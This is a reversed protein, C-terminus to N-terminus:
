PGVVVRYFGPLLRDGLRFSQALAKKIHADVEEARSSETVVLPAALGAADVVAFLEMPEWTKGAAPALAEPLVEALVLRGTAAAVVEIFGGRTAMPRVGRSGRGFGILGVEDGTGALADVARAREAPQGNVVAIPPLVRAFGAEPEVFDLANREDDLISRGPERKPEPLAANFGTPLFLPRLDRMLTEDQLVADGGTPRAFQLRTAAGPTASPATSTPVRFVQMLAVVLGVAAVSVIAWQTKRFETMM